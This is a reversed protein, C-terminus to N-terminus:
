RVLPDKPRRPTRGPKAPRDVTVVDAGFDALMMCAFPAPAASAIELVRLGDLPGSM